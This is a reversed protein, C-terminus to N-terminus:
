NERIERLLGIRAPHRLKDLAHDRLQRVRERTVGLEEGIEELTMSNYGKLGYYLNLIRLERENLCEMVSNLVAGVSDRVVSEDPSEQSEDRTVDYYDEDEGNRVPADLSSEGKSARITDEIQTEKVEMVDSLETIMDEPNVSGLRDSLGRAAKKMKLIMNVQNLPKRVSDSHEALTQLMAQRIWWVSYSIFKFGKTQDFREAATLLGLNGASILDQFSVGKNTPYTKAISVVFRLNAEVLKDRSGLDGERYKRTLEIEEERSLPTSSFIDEIYMSVGDESNASRTIGLERKPKGKTKPKPTTGLLRGELDRIKRCLPDFYERLVTKGDFRLLGIGELTSIDELRANFVRAVDDRDYKRRLDIKEKGNLMVRHALYTIAEDETSNKYLQDKSKAM